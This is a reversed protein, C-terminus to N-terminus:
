MWLHFVSEVEVNGSERLLQEGRDESLGKVFSQVIQKESFYKSVTQGKTIRWASLQISQKYNDLIGDEDCDEESVLSSSFLIGGDTGGKEATPKRLFSVRVAPNGDPMKVIPTYIIPLICLNVRSSFHYYNVLFEQFVRKGPIYTLPQVPLVAAFPFSKTYMRVAALASTGNHSDFSFNIRLITEEGTIDLLDDSASSDSPSTRLAPMPPSM